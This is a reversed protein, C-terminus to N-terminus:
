SVVYEWGYIITTQMPYWGVVVRGKHVFGVWPVVKIIM